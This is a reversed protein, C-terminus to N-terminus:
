HGAIPDTANNGDGYRNCWHDAAISFSDLPPNVSHDSDDAEMIYNNISFYAPGNGAIFAKFDDTQDKKPYVRKEGYYDMLAQLLVAAYHKREYNRANRKLAPVILFIMTIIVSFIVIVILVEIITFGRHGAHKKIM